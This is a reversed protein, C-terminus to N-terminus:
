LREFDMTGAFQPLTLAEAGHTAGNSPDWPYWHTTYFADDGSIFAHTADVMVLGSLRSSETHTYLWTSTGTALNIAERHAWANAGDRNYFGRINFTMVRLISDKGDHIYPRMATRGPSTM